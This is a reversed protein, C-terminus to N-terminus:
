VEWFLSTNSGFQDLIAYFYHFNVIFNRQSNKFHKEVDIQDYFKAWKCGQSQRFGGYQIARTLRYICIAQM